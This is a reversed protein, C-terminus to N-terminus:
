LAPLRIMFRQESLTQGNRPCGSCSSAPRSCLLILPFPPQRDTRSLIRRLAAQEFELALRRGPVLTTQPHTALAFDRRKHSSSWRLSMKKESNGSDTERCHGRLCLLRPHEAVTM